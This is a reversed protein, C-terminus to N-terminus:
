GLNQLWLKKMFRTQKEHLETGPTPKIGIELIVFEPTAYNKEPLFSLDLLTANFQFSNLHVKRHYPKTINHTQELM